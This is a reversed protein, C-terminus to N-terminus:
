AAKSIEEANPCSNPDLADYHHRRMDPDLLTTLNSACMCGTPVLDNARDDRPMSSATYSVLMSNQGGASQVGADRACPDTRASFTKSSTGEKVDPLQWLRAARSETM